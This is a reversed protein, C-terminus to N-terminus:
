ARGLRQKKLRRRACGSLAKKAPRSGGIGIVLHGPEGGVAPLSATGAGQLPIDAYIVGM